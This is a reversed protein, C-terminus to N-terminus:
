KKTLADFIKPYDVSVPDTDSDEFLSLLARKNAVFKDKLVKDVLEKPLAEILDRCLYLDKESFKRLVGSIPIALKPDAKMNGVLLDRHELVSEASIVIECEENNMIRIRRALDDTPMPHGQPICDRWPIKKDILLGLYEIRRPTFVLRQEDSLSDEWWDKLMKAVDTSMVKQMYELNIEAKMKVYVHFRDILAIDLDEVQYQDGPPNMAGWVMKLNPLKYGNVSKLQTIELISNLVRPHARNIEDFFLFEADELDKPRYFRLEGTEKDPAPIGVLDAFPDLTSASYAKLRMGLKEATERVCQTKGIGHTGILLVNLNNKAYIELKELISM